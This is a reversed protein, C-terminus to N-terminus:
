TNRSRWATSHQAMSHSTTSHHATNAHYLHAAAAVHPFARRAPASCGRRRHLCTHPGCSCGTHRTHGYTQTNTTTRPPYRRPLGRQERRRDESEAAALPRKRWFSRLLLTPNKHHPTHPQRPPHPQPPRGGAHGHGGHPSAPHKPNTSQRPIQSRLPQSVAVLPTYRFLLNLPQLTTRPLRTFARIHTARSCAPSGHSLTTTMRMYLQPAVPQNALMGIRVHVLGPKCRLLPKQALHCCQQSARHPKLGPAAASLRYPLLAQSRNMLCFEHLLSHVLNHAPPFPSATCTAVRLLLQTGVKWVEHGQQSGAQWRHLTALCVSFTWVSCRHAGCPETRICKVSGKNGTYDLSPTGWTPCMHVHHPWQSCGRSRVWPQM